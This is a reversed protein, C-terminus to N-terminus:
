GTGTIKAKEFSQQRAQRLEALESGTARDNWEIYAAVDSPQKFVPNTAVTVTNVKHGLVLMEVFTQGTQPVPATNQKRQAM